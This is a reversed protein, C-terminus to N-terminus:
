DDDFHEEGDNAFADVNGVGHRRNFFAKVAPWYRRGGFLTEKKPFGEKELVKIAPRLKDEGVGLRRAIENDYVFLCDSSSRRFQVDGAMLAGAPDVVAESIGLSSRTRLM